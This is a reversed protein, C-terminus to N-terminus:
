DVFVFEKVNWLVHGLDAWPRPDTQAQEPKLGYEAAQTKIFELAAETEATTPTRSFSDEYLRAVREVPGLQKNELLKTAWVQAQQVVLPDNMLILAQAPVNSTNRAGVTSFPIPSDFALMMPSLFNRRVELYVSRRGNGDLPGSGGPRGRGQMFPTLHVPVSPGYQTADLRGSIKLLADRIAEGQLRRINQRHLLKNQPDAEDAKADPVSSMQYTSSLLITRMLQKVSWGEAMFKASLHDLLEPNDPTQGLVGFNDVTPVIGRGFLHHWLRNVLVRSTLPNRPDVMENALLMRGSGRETEPVQPMDLAELLRRPVADGLTRHNGRIHVKDNLATGDAMALVKLPAPLSAAIPDMERSVAALQEDRAKVADSSSVLGHRLLWNVLETEDADCARRQWKELTRAVLRGYNAAVDDLSMTAGGTFAELGLPNANDPPPGENSFRIEDVAVYGDGHDIIELHARHGLYRGIDGGQVHWGWAEQNDVRHNCGGFLLGSFTDMFYGDIIMRIQANKGKLRYLVNRHTITFTPSRLVGQSKPSWLGSHAVGPRTAQATRAQADWQTSQTPRDGFADGTTWWGTFDSQNFDTLLTSRTRAENAQRAVTELRQRVAALEAPTPANDTGGGVGVLALWPELAHAPQKLAADDFAAVWRRLAAADVQRAVAIADVDPAGPRRADRAALLLKGIGSAADAGGAPLATRLSEDGRKALTKLQNTAQAIKDHPDLLAEQRRSSKLFGTLAYYDRTSIADFKHDHCRACAITVGLFTKSMVDLQNDIRGMEDGRVDVPAHTAEGLFWFGTGIVSENYGDQPHRRAPNLLDGAIHERVFQNYPVDANFARILYDRYQHAHPIAFDFEHGYTEAYRVLDLWHRAWREGFQPSKLLQDVIKEFAQPSDDALFKEVDDRSPPLGVVDFWVRRILTRKDAAPAPGLGAAELRSLVLRDLDQRPWNANKVAPLQPSVVPRWCWHEAKRAQLDVMTAMGAPKSATEAPWPLGMEVWKTLVAIENAPMKSKPPMQYTEGYNISDVLLSEKPKGPVAAPGTDGGKLVAARSDLWLNGQVKKADRSHCEYCRNALLPRVEK